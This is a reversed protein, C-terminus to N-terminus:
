PSANPAGEKEARDADIGTFYAEDKRWLFYNAVGLVLIFGVLLPSFAGLVLSVVEALVLVCAVAFIIKRPIGM